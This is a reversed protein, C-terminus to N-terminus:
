LGAHYTQIAAIAATAVTTITHVAHGGGVEVAQACFGVLAQGVVDGPAGALVQAPHASTPNAPAFM